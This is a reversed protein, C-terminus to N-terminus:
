AKDSSIQRGLWALYGLLAYFVIQFPLGELLANRYFLYFAFVPLIAQIAAADARVWSERSSRHIRGAERWALALMAFIMGFGMVGQEWLLISAATLSIGYGPYRRAMHGGTGDHASGLGHGIIAGIPDHLGQERIWFTLVRTRNLTYRGPGKEYVTYSLTDAVLKDLNKQTISLYAYGAAVTLLTGLALGALAVHPRALLERRYLTLFVLPLMVVVAKTEGMFLPTVVIPALWLFRTKSLGADRLHALLFVLIIVLFAAMEGNAGGETMNAGFTGAVVDIPVMGPYAFRMGERIPVLRLLEYIAWPLQALAVFLFLKRWRAVTHEDLALWAFAFLLGISQFYRKFGGLFEYANDSHVLGNLVAYLLFALAAWVFGPTDRTVDKTTVARFLALALLAFGLLSVGWVMKSAAGEAWIPIIGVVLLGLVFILWMLWVPRALLAAGVLSAAALAVLIPSTTVAVLGFLIALLSLVILAAALAFAPPKSRSRDHFAAAPHNM